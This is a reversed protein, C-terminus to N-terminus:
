DGAAPWLYVGGVTEPPRDLVKAFLAEAQDAHPMPGVVVAEVRHDALDRRYTAVEAATPDGGAVGDFIALLRDSLAFRAPGLRAHGGEGATFLYGEPEKFRMGAQAQWLLPQTAAPTSSFPAVLVVEGQRFRRAAMKAGFLEPTAAPTTEFPLRPLLTLVVLAVAVGAVVRRPVAGALTVREVFFALLVAACLDVYMALRNPLLNGLLPMHDVVLYPLPVRVDHGAVHLHPGLSLLAMAAGLLTFFRVVPVRRMTWACYGCIALLPVGLYGNWESGNGTFHRSIAALWEPAVMQLDTPVVLNLLDTVYVNRPQIVGVLHNPGLFQYALPIASLPVAVGLAVALGCALNSLRPLVLDRHLAALIALGVAGTLAETALLEEGLLLQATATLGLLAGTRLPSRRRRVVLEEVLYVVLPPTWAMVLHWHGVAQTTMFPSFGYLAGGAVAPWARLGLHRLLLFASWATLALAATMVLNYSLVPGASLTVPTMLWGALPMPTNWMVNYGQPHNVYDTIFPNLRHTLSFAFWRLFWVYVVPDGSSGVIRELPSQWTSAFLGFAMGFYGGLAALAGWGRRGLIPPAYERRRGLVLAM